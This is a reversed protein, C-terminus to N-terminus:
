NQNLLNLIDRKTVLDSEVKSILNRKANRYHTVVSMRFPILQEKTETRLKVRLDQLQDNIIELTSIIQELTMENINQKKM